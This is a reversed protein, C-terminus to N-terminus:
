LVLRACHKVVKYLPDCLGEKVYIARVPSKGPRPGPLKCLFNPDARHLNTCSKKMFLTSKKSATHYLIYTLLSPSSLFEYHYTLGCTLASTRSLTATTNGLLFNKFFTRFKKLFRKVFGYFHPIIYTYSPLVFTRVSRPLLDSEASECLWLLHSCLNNQLVLVRYILCYVLSM